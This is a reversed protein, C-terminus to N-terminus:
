EVLLDEEAIDTKVHVQRYICDNQRNLPSRLLFRAEDSFWVRKWVCEPKFCNILALSKNERMGQHREPLLNCKIRRYCKLESKLIEFVSTKSINLYRAIKRQSFHRREMAGHRVPSVALGKVM